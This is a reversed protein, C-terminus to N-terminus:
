LPRYWIPEAREWTARSHMCMLRDRPTLRTWCRTWRLLRVPGGLGPVSVFSYTLLTLVNIIIVIGCNIVAGYCTWLTVVLAGQCMILWKPSSNGCAIVQKPVIFMLFYLLFVSFVCSLWVPELFSFYAFSLWVGLSCSLLTEHEVRCVVLWKPPLAKWAIV